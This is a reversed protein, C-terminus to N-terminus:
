RCAAPGVGPGARLIAMGPTARMTATAEPLPPTPLDVVATLRAILREASPQRTPM